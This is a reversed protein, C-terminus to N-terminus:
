HKSAPPMPSYSSWDTEAPNRLRAQAEDVIMGSAVETFLIAGATLVFFFSPVGLHDMIKSPQVLAFLLFGVSVFVVGATVASFIMETVLVVISDLNSRITEALVTM